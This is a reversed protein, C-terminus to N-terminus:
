EPKHGWSFWDGNMEFGFRFIVPRGWRAAAIGLKQFYEDYRGDAIQQLGNYNETARWPAPEFSIVPILNRANCIEVARLPFGRGRNLDRFFLVYRPAGGLQAMQQDLDREFQEANWLIQYIGWPVQRTGPMHSDQALASVCELEVILMMWVLLKLIMM